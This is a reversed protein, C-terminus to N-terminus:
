ATVEVGTVTCAFYKFKSHTLDDRITIKVWDNKGGYLRVARGFSFTAVMHDYKGTRDIKFGAMPTKEIFHETLRFNAMETVVEDSSVEFKVGNALTNIHAFYSGENRIDKSV